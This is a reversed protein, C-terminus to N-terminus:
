YGRVLGAWFMWMGVEEVEGRIRMERSGQLGWM